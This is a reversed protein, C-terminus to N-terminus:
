DHAIERKKAIIAYSLQAIKAFCDIMDGYLLGSVVSCKGSKLRELHSKQLGEQLSAIEQELPAVKEGGEKELLTRECIAIADGVKAAFCKLEDMASDSFFLREEKKRVLYNLAAEGQLGVLSLDNVMQLMTPIEVARELSLTERSLAILFQSMDRRLVDLVV